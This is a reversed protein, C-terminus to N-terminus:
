VGGKLEYTFPQLDRNVIVNPDTKLRNAIQRPRPIKHKLKKKCKGEEGKRDYEEWLINVIGKATYEHGRLINYIMDMDIYSM